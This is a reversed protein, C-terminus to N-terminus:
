VRGFTSFTTSCGSSSATKSAQAKRGSRGVTCKEMEHFFFSFLEQFKAIRGDLALARQLQVLLDM